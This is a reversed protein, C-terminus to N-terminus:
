SRPGSAPGLWAGSRMNRAAESAIASLLLSWASPKMLASRWSPGFKASPCSSIAAKSAPSGVRSRPAEVARWLAAISRAM